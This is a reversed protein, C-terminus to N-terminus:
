QLESNLIAVIPLIENAIAKPLRIIREPDSYTVITITTMSRSVIRALMTFEVQAIKIRLLADANLRVPRLRDVLIIEGARIRPEMSDGAAYVGFFREEDSPNRLRDLQTAPKESLTGWIEMQLLQESWDEGEQQLCKLNEPAELVYVPLSHENSSEHPSHVKLDPMRDVDSTAYVPDFNTGPFATLIKTLTRTSLTYGVTPRPYIRTLTSPSLGCKKAIVTVSYGTRERIERIIEIAKAQVPDPIKAPKRKEDLEFRGMATRDIGRIIEYQSM